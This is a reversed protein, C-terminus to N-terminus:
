TGGGRAEGGSSSTSLLSSHLTPWTPVTQAAVQLHPVLRAWSRPKAWVLHPLLVSGLHGAPVPGLFSELFGQLHVSVQQQM